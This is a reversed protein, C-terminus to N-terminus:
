EADPEDIARPRACEPPRSRARSQGEGRNRRYRDEDEEDAVDVVPKEKRERGRESRRGPKQEETDRAIGVNPDRTQERKLWERVESPDRVADVEPVRDHKPTGPQESRRRCENEGHKRRASGEMEDLPWEKLTPM